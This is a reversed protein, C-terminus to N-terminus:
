VQELAAVRARLDDNQAKLEQVCKMLAYQLDTQYISLRQKPAEATGWNSEMVLEPAVAQVDQAVVGLTLGPDDDSQDIYNFTQVPIACIADLYSKAPAFNTKERRDSLNVDNAQYNAIGGNSRIALRTTVNDACSLFTRTADNPAAGTFAVALGYPNTASPNLVALPNTEAASKSVVSGGYGTNSTTGVLLDGGSTLTMAQTFTINQVVGGAALTGSTTATWITGVNNDPAGFSTQNGSSTTTYSRGNVIANTIGATGSPATYWTHVGADQDYLSAQSTNKYMAVGGAARYANNWISTRTGSQSIAAYTGLDIARVVAGSTQWASPTVGVGLNSGDFVLASGTALASTSSAYVVGNATFSTLGTGGSATPLAAGLSLSAFYNQAVLVDTGDCRLTMRAGNPVSIGSGSPTKVTQSFGTGNTVFYLKSVAPVIVQYSAGPTGELVLFMSKAQDAVGNANTLTVNAATMTVTTTGAVAADVLATMSNNIESGWSGSYEGTSPQLLRLSTTYSPM